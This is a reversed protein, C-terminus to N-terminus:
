LGASNPLQTVCHSLIHYDHFFYYFGCAIIKARKLLEIDCKDISTKKRLHVTKKSANTMSLFSADISADTM